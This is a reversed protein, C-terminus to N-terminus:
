HNPTSAQSKSQAKEIMSHLNDSAKEQKFKHEDLRQDHAEDREKVHQKIIADEEFAEEDRRQELKASSLPDSRPIVSPFLGGVPLKKENKGTQDSFKHRSLAVSPEDSDIAEAHERYKDSLQALSRMAASHIQSYEEDTMKRVTINRQNISEHITKGDKTKAHVQINNLRKIQDAYEAKTKLEVNDSGRRKTALVTILNDPISSEKEHTVSKDALVSSQFLNGIGAEIEDKKALFVNTIMDEESSTFDFEESSFTNFSTQGANFPSDLNDLFSM